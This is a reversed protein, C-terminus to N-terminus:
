KNYLHRKERERIWDFYSYTKDEGVYKFMATRWNSCHEKIWDAETKGYLKKNKGLQEDISQFLEERTMVTGFSPQGSFQARALERDFRMTGDNKTQLISKCNDGVCVIPIDNYNNTITINM